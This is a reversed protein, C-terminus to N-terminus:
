KVQFELPQLVVTEDPNYYDYLESQAAKAHMAFRPRFGFRFHADAAKPWIYIAVHDPAIEFSDLTGADVLATLSARDVDAGPPLGINAILMGYGRFAKRGVSVACQTMQNIALIAPGCNLAFNLTKAKAPGTWPEYWSAAAQVQILAEGGSFSIQNIAGSRAFRSVDITVPGQVANAAELVVPMGPEKNVSVLITTRSRQEVGKWVALLADLAQVTAQTTPWAGDTGATRFLFLVGRDILTNLESNGGNIDRWNALASIALATTEIRGAAGWGHFPTNAPLDWYATGQEDRASKRLDAIADKALESKGASMAALALQAVAYPDNWRAAERAMKGLDEDLDRSNGGLLLSRLRLARVSSDGAPHNALWKSVRELRDEDVSIMEKADLLFQLAYATLAADPQDQRGWYSFAGDADQYNLLREYGDRLNKQARAALDGGDLKTRRLARLFLLNPYTSSITQEACGYPRTLLARVSALIRSLLSPYITVQAQLSGPIANAPIEIQLPQNATAVGNVVKDRREGDPHIDIARKVADSASRGIASVQVPARDASSSAHLSLVAEASSSAPITLQERASRGSGLSQALANSVTVKQAQGTYNHIPIPISVSDGATLVRPVDLDVVLPQFARIEANSEAIEGDMTSAIVAVRWTTVSDALKVQISASGDKGTILEPAWFLTEPFYERVHPTSIPQKIAAVTASATALMAPRASVEVTEAVVGVNLVINAQTIRDAEVPLGALEYRQFGPSEALLEYVGPPVASFEYEGNQGTESEYLGNLILHARPIGAGAPDLVWGHITGSGAVHGQPLRNTQEPSVSVKEDQAVNRFAAVDFDDHTGSIGDAGASRIQVVLSHRKVPTVARREEIRRQYEAYTYIEINDSWFDETSVAIYYRHGWPDRLSDFDVGADRLRSRVGAEDKPFGSQAFIAQGIKHEAGHFYFGSFEALVLDDATGWRADPGASLIRIVRRQQQYDIAVRLSSGWPDRLEDFDVGAKHIVAKFEGGAAPYDTLQKLQQAILGRYPTFWGRRLELGVFDDATGRRKDPGSSVFRLVYDSGEIAFEPYWPRMWPDYATIYAYGLISRLEDENRPFELTDAYHKDLVNQLPALANESTRLFADKIQARLDDGNSAFAPESVLVAAVLQLDDDIQSPSLSALDRQRIGAIDPENTMDHDFWRRSVSDAQVREAVSEDVIALGLAAVNSTEFKVTAMDGPRYTAAGSTARVKFGAAGVFIVTRAAASNLAPSSIGISLQNGFRAEYNIDIEAGGATLTLEKSLVTQGASNWALLLVPAGKAEGTIRCKVTQGASYLIHDTELWLRSDPDPFPPLPQEAGGDTTTARVAISEYAGRPFTLKALGYRNAEGTALTKGDAVVSVSARAPRGDPLYTSVYVIEEHQTEEQKAIYLNVPFRSVRLDFKHQEIRNTSKDTVYAVLRRDSFQLHEPLESADISAIFHGGNLEGAAIAEDSDEPTVRATGTEVPKGFLYEAAIDVVAKQGMLYFARDPKVNVRFSPLEYRRIEVEQDFTSDDDDSGVRITYRGSTANSPILWDASAIGFRSTKVKADFLMDQREDLVRIEHEFNARVPGASSLSLIRMHMTQGPQYLPKDTYINVTDLRAILSLERTQVYDGLKAKVTIEEGDGSDEVPIQLVAVGDAGTVAATEGCSIAVGSAPKHTVPHSALVHISYPKGRRPVNATVVSLVFSENAIEPLSLVGTQPNFATYNKEGPIVNYRLRETLPNNTAALPLPIEIKSDGPDLVITRRATIDPKDEPSVWELTVVAQLPSTSSNAIEVAVTTAKALHVATAEERVVVQASVACSVFCVCLIGSLRSGM